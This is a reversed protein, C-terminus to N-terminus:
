SEIQMIRSCFILFVSFVFAPFSAGASYFSGNGAFCSLDRRRWEYVNGQGVNILMLRNYMCVSYHRPNFFFLELRVLNSITVQDKVVGHPNLQTLPYLRDIFDYLEKQQQHAESQDGVNDLVDCSLKQGIIGVLFHATTLVMLVLWALFVLGVGSDFLFSCFVHM